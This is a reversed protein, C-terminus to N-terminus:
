GVKARGVMLERKVSLRFAEAMEAPQQCVQKKDVLNQLRGCSMGSAM